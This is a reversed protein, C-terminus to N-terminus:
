QQFWCTELPAAKVRFAFTELATWSRLEMLNILTSEPSWFRDWSNRGQLLSQFVVRHSLCRGSVGAWVTKSPNSVGVDPRFWKFILLGKISGRCYKARATFECILWSQQTGDHLDTNRNRLYCNFDVIFCYCISFWHFSLGRIIMVVFFDFM